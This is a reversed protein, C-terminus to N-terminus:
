QLHKLVTAQAKGLEEVEAGSWMAAMQDGVRYFLRGAADVRIM